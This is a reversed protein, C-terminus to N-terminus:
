GLEVRHRGAPITIAVVDGAVRVVAAPAGDIRAAPLSPWRGRLELRLPSETTVDGAVPRRTRISMRSLDLRVSGAGTLKAEFANRLPAASGPRDAWAQGEMVSPNPEDASVPPAVEPALDHQPDPIAFSRADIRARGNAPDVPELGSMWYARDFHFALPVKDSNVTQVAHEMPMSRIYTVAPPNPDRVFGHEYRVGEAWLDVIPPGYHEEHPFVWYRYRLGLDRMRNMQQTVGAVPVLEDAAGQYNAYPVWRLNELLPMTFEAKPDGGNAGTYCPDADCGVWAGQTLAGSAPFAAAFRDPYLIPLLWSAWGGMSHGAIYERNRDIRVIRHVDAWVELFDQHSKGVYWGAEGRGDPTVVLSGADEGMQHIIGPAVAAAIHARGGRFHFWWQV